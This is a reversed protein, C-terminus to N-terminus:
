AAAETVDECAAQSAQESASHRPAHEAAPQATEQLLELLVSLPVGGIGPDAFTGVLGNSRTIEGLRKAGILEILEARPAPQRAVFQQLPEALVQRLHDVM